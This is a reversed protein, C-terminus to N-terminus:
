NRKLKKRFWLASFIEAKKGRQQSEYNKVRRPVVINSHGVSNFEAL